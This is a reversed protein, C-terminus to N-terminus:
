KWSNCLKLMENGEGDIEFAFINGHMDFLKAKTFGYRVCNKKLESKITEDNNLIEYSEVVNRGAYYLYNARVGENIVPLENLPMGRICNGILEYKRGREARFFELVGLYAVYMAVGIMSCQFTKRLNINKYHKVSALMFLILLFICVKHRDYSYMVAHNLCVINELIPIFLALLALIVSLNDENKTQRVSDKIFNWTNKIVNPSIMWIALPGLSLVMSAFWLPIMKWTISRTNGRYRLADLYEALPITNSFYLLMTVISGVTIVLLSFFLYIDKIKRTFLYRLLVALCIGFSFVVGSWEIWPSVATLVLLLFHYRNKFIILSGLILIPQLIQQGWLSLTYSKMSEFMTFCLISIAFSSNYRLKTDIKPGLLEYFLAGTLLTTLILLTFSFLRLLPPSGKLGFVQLIRAPVIFAGPPFSTYYFRGERDAVSSTPLNDIGKNHSGPYSFITPFLAPDQELIKCTVLVHSLADENANLTMSYLLPKNCVYSIFIILFILASCLLKKKM